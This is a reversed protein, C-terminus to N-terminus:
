RLKQQVEDVEQHRGHIEKWKELLSTWWNTDLAMWAKPADMRKTQTLNKTWVQTKNDIKTSNTKEVTIRGPKAIKKWSKTARWQKVNLSCSDGNIWRTNSRAENTYIQKLNWKWKGVSTRKNRAIKRWKLRHM